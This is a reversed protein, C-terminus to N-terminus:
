SGFCSNKPQIGTARFEEAMEELQLIKEKRTAEIIAKKEEAEQHIVAIKNMMKEAYQAKKKELKEEIKRLQAEISAKKSIEWSGVASLKKCAKNNAKTKGTEEWARVFASLKETNVRKLQAGSIVICDTKWKFVKVYFESVEHNCVVVVEALRARRQCLSQRRQWPYTNFVIRVHYVFFYVSFYIFCRSEDCAPAAKEEPQPTVSKEQATDIEPQNVEPERFVVKTAREEGM